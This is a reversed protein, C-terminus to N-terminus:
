EIGVILFVFLLSYFFAFAPMLDAMIVQLTFIKHIPLKNAFLQIIQYHKKYHLNYQKLKPIYMISLVVSGTVTSVCGIYLDRSEFAIKPIYAFQQWM